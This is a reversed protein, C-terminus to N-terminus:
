SPQTSNITISPPLQRIKYYGYGYRFLALAAGFAFMSTSTVIGFFSIMTVAYATFSIALALHFNVRLVQLILLLLLFGTKAYYADQAIRVADLASSSIQYKDFINVGSFFNIQMLINVIGYGIVILITVVRNILFAHQKMSM